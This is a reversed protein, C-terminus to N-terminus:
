FTSTSGHTASFSTGPICFYNPM